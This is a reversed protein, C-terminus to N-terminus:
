RYDCYVDNYTVLPSMASMTNSYPVIGRRVNCALWMGCVYVFVTM